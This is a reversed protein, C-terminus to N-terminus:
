AAASRSPQAILREMFFEVHGRPGPPSQWQGARRAIDRFAASAPASPFADVVAEQRQVARRLPLRRGSRAAM